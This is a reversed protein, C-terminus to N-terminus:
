RNRLWEGVQGHFTKFGIHGMPIEPDVWIKGGIDRWRKCFSYDEGYYLDGEHINDFLGHGYGTPANKDAYRKNPYARIMELLAKRTVRMFGSPVSEVELLGTDPDAILEPRDKIWGVFFDLPDCRKPYLGAVFDVPHDVLKVLSGAPWTVDYDVFVLDTAETDLFKACIMDRSHSIMPNGTEDALAVRDGREALLVMDAIISKMTGLHIMGTYAPIAIHVNRQM